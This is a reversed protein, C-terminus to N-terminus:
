VFSKLVTMLSGASSLISAFTPLSAVYIGARIVSPRQARAIIIVLDKDVKYLNDAVNASKDKILQGGTAYIFLYMIVSIGFPGLVIKGGISRSVVLHFGIVCLQMSSILFQTFVIPKVLNNLKDALKLITIHRM